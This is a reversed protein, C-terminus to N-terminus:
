HLVILGGPWVRGPRPPRFYDAGITGGLGRRHGFPGGASTDRRRPAVARAQAPAITPCRRYPLVTILGLGGLNGPRDVHCTARM